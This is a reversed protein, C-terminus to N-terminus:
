KGGDVIGRVLKIEAKTIFLSSVSIFLLLSISFLWWGSSSIEFWFLMYLVWILAVAVFSYSWNISILQRSVFIEGCLFVLRSILGATLVQNLTNADYHKTIILYFIFTSLTYIILRYYSKEAVITGIGCFTGIFIFFQGLVLYPVVTEALIYEAGALLIVLTESTADIIVAFVAFLLVLHKMIANLLNGELNSKMDKFFRPFFATQFIFIPMSYILSIKQGVSYAGLDIMLNSSFLYTREFLPLMLGSFVIIGMPVSYFVIIKIKNVPLRQFSFSSKIAWLGLVGNLFYIICVGWLLKELEFKAFFIFYILCLILSIPLFLGIILYGVKQFKLRLITLSYLLYTYGVAGLLIMLAHNRSYSKMFGNQMTGSFAFYVCTVILTSILIFYIPLSILQGQSDVFREDNGFRILGSDFGMLLLTGIVSILYFHYDFWGYEDVTLRSAIVPLALLSLSKGLAKVFGYFVFDGLLGKM